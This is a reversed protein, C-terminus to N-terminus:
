LVSGSPYTVGYWLLAGICVVSFFLVLMINNKRDRPTMQSWEPKQRGAAFGILLGIGTGALSGYAVAMLIDFLNM